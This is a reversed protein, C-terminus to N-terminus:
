KYKSEASLSIQEALIEKIRQAVKNVDASENVSGFNVTINPALSVIKNECENCSDMAKIVAIVEDINGEVGFEMDDDKYEFIM